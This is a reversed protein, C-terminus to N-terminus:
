LVRKVKYQGNETDPAQKIAEAREASDWDAVEDERWANVLGSVQATPKVGEIDVEKLKDVYGLVTTLQKAYLFAEDETLNLRALKAIHKIDKINLM